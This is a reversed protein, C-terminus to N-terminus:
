SFEHLKSDSQQVQLYQHQQFLQNSNHFHSSPIQNFHHQNQLQQHQLHNIQSQNHLNQHQNHQNHPQSYNSIPNTLSIQQQQQSTLQFNQESNQM